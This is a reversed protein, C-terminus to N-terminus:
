QLGLLERSIQEDSLPLLEMGVESADLLDQIIHHDPHVGTKDLISAYNNPVFEVGNHTFPKTAVPSTM